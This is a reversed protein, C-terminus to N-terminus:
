KAGLSLWAELAQKMPSFSIMLADWLDPSKAGDPTKDILIKGTANLSFTPQQCQTRLRDILKLSPSISIIEDPHFPLKEVVARHTMQFRMRVLWSTQAKLNAFYDKNTRKTAASKVDTGAKFTGDPDSVGGSGQFQYDRIPKLGDRHRQENLVRADGRVGAGLGDGDYHFSDYGREHCYRFVRETSRFIDGGKGPWEELDELQVGYRGAWACLDIGEDAVDFGARRSGSPKIGLKECAGIAAEFWAPPILLGEISGLWNIDIERAVILEGHDALEADYWAQDKRPDDRWHFTFVRHAPMSARKRAVPAASSDPSPTTIDQRCNTTQSLAADASLPHELFATEDVFYLATRDGRGIEDGIEGTITAGTNPILTRMNPSNEEEWGARFEEPLSRMYSRLREFFAKPAGRMDVYEQKRSGFGIGLGDYSTCLGVCAGVTLWSLGMDRSKETFGDERARWREVLWDLWQRQRPFLIFPIAAPLGRDVNRPDITMGWDNVFDALHTKYYHKILGVRGPRARLWKLRDIRQQFITPYDPNRWDFAPVALPAVANM